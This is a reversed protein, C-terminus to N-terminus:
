ILLLSSFNISWIEQLQRHYFVSKYYSNNGQVEILLYDEIQSIWKFTNEEFYQNHQSTKSEVGRLYKSPLNNPIM